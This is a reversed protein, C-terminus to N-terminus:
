LQHKSMRAQMNTGHLSTGSLPQIVEVKGREGEKLRKRVCDEDDTSEKSVLAELDLGCGQIQSGTDLSCFDFTSFCRCIRTNEFLRVWSLLVHPLNSSLPRTELIVSSFAHVSLTVPCALRCFVSKASSFLGGERCM